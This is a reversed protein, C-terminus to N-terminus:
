RRGQRSSVIRLITLVNAQYRYAIIHHKLFLEREESFGPVPRGLEPFRMLRTFARRMTERYREEQASGWTDFTFQLIDALDEDAEASFRLEISSKM